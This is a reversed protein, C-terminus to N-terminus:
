EMNKEEGEEHIKGKKKKLELRGDLSCCHLGLNLSNQM